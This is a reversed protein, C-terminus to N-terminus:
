QFVTCLTHPVTENEAQFLSVGTGSLKTSIIIAVFMIFDINVMRSFEMIIQSYVNWNHQESEAIMFVSLQKGQHRRTARQERIVYKIKPCGEKQNTGNNCAAKRVIGLM